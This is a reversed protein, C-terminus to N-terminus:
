TQYVQPYLIISFDVSQSIAPPPCFDIIVRIASRNINNSTTSDQMRPDYPKTAGKYQIGIATKIKSTDTCFTPTKFTKSFLVNSHNPSHLKVMNRICRSTSRYAAINLICSLLIIYTAIQKTIVITTLEM